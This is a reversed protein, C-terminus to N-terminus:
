GPPVPAPAATLALVQGSALSLGNVGVYFTGDPGVSLGTPSELGDFLLWRTGDAFVEYLAGTTEPNLLWDSDTELAFPAGILDFAVNIVNTFGGATTGFSDDPALGSVNAAGEPFPFGTLHAVTM